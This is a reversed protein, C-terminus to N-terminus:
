PGTLLLPCSSTTEKQCATLYFLEESCAALFSRSSCVVSMMTCGTRMALIRSGLNTGLTPNGLFRQKIPLKVAAGLNELSRTRFSAFRPNRVPHVHFHSSFSRFAVQRHNEHKIGKIVTGAHM